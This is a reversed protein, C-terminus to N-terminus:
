IRGLAWAAQRRVQGDIDGLAEILLPRANRAAAGLRGILEVAQRRKWGDPQTAAAALGALAARGMRQLRDLADQQKTAVPEQLQDLLRGVEAPVPEAAIADGAPGAPLLCAGALMIWRNLRNWFATQRDSWSLIM